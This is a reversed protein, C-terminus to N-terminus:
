VQLRVVSERIPYSFPLDNVIQVTQTSGTTKISVDSEKITKILVYVGSNVSRYFNNQYSLATNVILDNCDLQTFIWDGFKNLVIQWTMIEVYM